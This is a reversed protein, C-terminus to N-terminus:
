CKYDFFKAESIDTEHREQGRQKVTKIVTVQPGDLQTSNLLTFQALQPKGM